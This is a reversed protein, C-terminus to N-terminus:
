WFKLPPIAANCRPVRGTSYFLCERRVTREIGGAIAPAHDFTCHVSLVTQEVKLNTAYSSRRDSAVMLACGPTKRALRATTPAVRSRKTKGRAVNKNATRFM